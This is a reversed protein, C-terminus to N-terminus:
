LHKMSKEHREEKANDIVREYLDICEGKIYRLICRSLDLFDGAMECRDELLENRKELLEFDKKLKDFQRQDQPQPSPLPPGQPKEALKQELLLVKLKLESIDEEVHEGLLKKCAAKHKEKNPCTEQHNVVLKLKQYIVKCGLCAKYDLPSQVGNVKPKISLLSGLKGRGLHALFSSSFEPTKHSL